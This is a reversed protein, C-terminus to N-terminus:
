KEYRKDLMKLLYTAKDIYKRRYMIKWYSKYTYFDGRLYYKELIIDNNENKHIVAPGSIRHYIGNHNRWGYGVYNSFEQIINPKNNERCYKNEKFWCKINYNPDIVAPKDDDRHLKGNKYWKKVDNSLIVAPNDNYSHIKGNIDYTITKVSIDNESNM